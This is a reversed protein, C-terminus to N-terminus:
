QTLKRFYEKIIKEYQRPFKERLADLIEQRFARPPKYEDARPLKVPAIRIGSFGGASRMQFVSGATQGSMNGENQIMQAANGIGQEIDKLHELAQRQSEIADPTNKSSLEQGAKGMKEDAKGLNDFVDAGIATSTRGFEEMSRRLKQTQDGLSLQEKSLNNLNQEDKASFLGEPSINRLADLIEKEGSKISGFDEKLQKKAKEDNSSRIREAAREIDDWQSIIDQLYKQSHYVREKVFEDLVKNMLLISQNASYEHAFMKSVLQPRTKEAKEILKAQRSALQGLLKEQKRFLNERRVDNAQETDKILGEQKEIIKEIEAKQRMINTTMKNSAGQSFGINEGASQLLESISKLNELLSKALQEARQLDGQKIAQALQDALNKASETNLEKISPANVFDEPLEQPLKSIQANIQELLNQIKELIKKMEASDPLNKLQDLVDQGAKELESSKDVLDRMRQYQWIDESLLTIKELEAIIEDQKILVEKLKKEEILNIAETMQNDKLFDVHSKLGKYESLTAFDCYPDSEMRALLNDLTEVANQTGNKVNKQDKIASNFTNTSFRSEITETKGKAVTQDALVNLLKQRLEKLENEIQEHEKQYDASQVVLAPTQSTKPGNVTDNDYAKLYYWLKDGPKLNHKSLKWVYEFTEIPANKALNFLEIQGESGNDQKYALEIRTLGFDDRSRVVLPIEADPSITLDDKPSLLEIEPPKDETISIDYQPPNPDDIGDKTEAIIGYKGAKTITFEASIERGDVKAHFKEDHSTVIWANTIKKNSSAKVSAITGSLGSINPNGKLKQMTLGTYQPYQYQIEFEGFQAFMVPVVTYVQTELDGWVVYYDIESVLNEILYCFKNEEEISMEARRWRSKSPRLFLVPKGPFYKKPEICINVREGWPYKRTGPEIGFWSDWRSSKYSLLIRGISPKLIEPPVFYLACALVGLIGALKGFYLLAPRLSIIMSAAIKGVKNEMKVVLENILEGSVGAHAMTSLQWASILEDGFDSIKKQILLIISEDDLIKPRIRGAFDILCYIGFLASFYYFIRRYSLPIFLLYDFIGLLIYFALCFILWVSFDRIFSDMICLMRVKKIFISTKNM